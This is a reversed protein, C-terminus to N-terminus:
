PVPKFGPLHDFIAGAQGFKYLGGKQQQPAEFRHTSAGMPPASRYLLTGSAVALATMAGGITVLTQMFDGKRGDERVGDGRLQRLSDEVGPVHELAGNTFQGLTGLVGRPAASTWPLNEYNGVQWSMISDQMHDIFKSLHAGAPTRKMCDEMFPHPTRVLLLRLYGFALFDLASPSEWGFFFRSSGRLEQLTSFFEETYSQLRIAALQEPQMIETVKPKLPLRLFGTSTTPAMTKSQSSGDQPDVDAALHDLGLHATKAIAAKRLKLPVTWTLPFSLLSSYAPRTLEAWASPSVYLSFSVLASGRSSLYAAYALTDAQQAASLAEPATWHCQEALYSVINMYGSTWIGRHYVAPLVDVFPPSRNILLLLAQNLM